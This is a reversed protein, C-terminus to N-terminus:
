EKRVTVAVGVNEGGGASKGEGSVDSLESSWSIAVTGSIEEGKSHPFPM